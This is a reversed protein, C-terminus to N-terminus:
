IFLDHPVHKSFIMKFLSPFSAWTPLPPLAPHLRSHSHAQSVAPGEAPFLGWGQPDNRGKVSSETSSGHNGEAFTFNKLHEPGESGFWEM